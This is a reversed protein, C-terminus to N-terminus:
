RSFRGVIEVVFDVAMLAIVGTALWPVAIGARTPLDTSTRFEELDSRWRRLMQQCWVLGGVFLVAQLVLGPTLM